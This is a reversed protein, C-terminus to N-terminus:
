AHSSTEYKSICVVKGNKCKQLPNKLTIQQLTYLFEYSSVSLFLHSEQKCKSSKPDKLIKESFYKIKVNHANANIDFQKEKATKNKSIACGM